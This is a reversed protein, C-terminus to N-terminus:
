SGCLVDSFSLSHRHALFSARSKYRHEAPEITGDHIKSVRSGPRQNPLRVIVRSRSLFSSGSVIDTTMEEDGGHFVNWVM